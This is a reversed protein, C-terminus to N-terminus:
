EARTLGANIAGLFLISVLAFIGPGFYAVRTRKVLAVDRRRIFTVMLGLGVYLYILAVLVRAEVPMPALMILAQGLPFLVLFVLADWSRWSDMGLPTPPADRIVRFQGSVILLQFTLGDVLDGPVQLGFTAALDQLPQRIWARYFEVGALMFGKWEFVVDSISTVSSTTMFLGLCILAKMPRSSRRWMAKAEEWDDILNM